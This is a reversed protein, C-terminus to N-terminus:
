WKWFGSNKSSQRSRPGRGWLYWLLVVGLASVRGIGLDVAAIASLILVVGLLGLVGPLTLITLQRVAVTALLLTTALVYVSFIVILDVTNIVFAPSQAWPGIDFFFLLLLGLPLLLGLIGILIVDPFRSKDSKHIEWM